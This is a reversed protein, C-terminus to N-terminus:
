QSAGGLLFSSTTSHLLQIAEGTECFTHVGRQNWFETCHRRYRIPERVKEKYNM